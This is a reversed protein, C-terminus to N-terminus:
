PILTVEHRVSREFVRLVHESPGLRYAGPDPLVLLHDQSMM